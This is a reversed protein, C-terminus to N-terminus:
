KISRVVFLLQHENIDVNYMSEIMLLIFAIAARNIGCTLHPLSSIM